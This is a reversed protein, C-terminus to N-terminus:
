ENAAEDAKLTGFWTEQTETEQETSVRSARLIEDEISVIQKSGTRGLDVIINLKGPVAKAEDSIISAWALTKEVVGRPIERVPIPFIKVDTKPNLRFYGAIVGIYKATEARSVSAKKQEGPRLTLLQFDVVTEDIKGKQLLEVAGEPTVSLGRFTNPDNMQFLGVAISHPRGSVSNVDSSARLVLNVARVEYTWEEEEVSLETPTSGCASILLTVIVFLLRGIRFIVAKGPNSSPWAGTTM